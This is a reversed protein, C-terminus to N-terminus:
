CPAGATEPATNLMAKFISIDTKRTVAPRFFRFDYDVEYTLYGITKIDDRIEDFILGTMVSGNTRVATRIARITYVKGHKVSTSAAGDTKIDARKVAVVKQGVRFNCM